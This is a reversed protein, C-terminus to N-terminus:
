EAEEDKDILTFMESCIAEIAQWLEQISSARTYGPTLLLKREEDVFVETPELDFCGKGEHWPGITEAVVFEALSIAAITGGASHVARLFEAVEPDPERAEMTGFGTLLNKVAGQGGVLILGDLLKPSIEKLAYVKGRVLRASEVLQNRPKAAETEQATTHDVTHFQDADLALPLAEHGARQVALMSLVAEHADSGDYGGCGSLLIGIRRKM